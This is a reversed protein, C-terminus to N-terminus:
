KETINLCARIVENQKEYKRADSKSSLYPEFTLHLCNQGCSKPIAYKFGIRIISLCCMTLLVIKTKNSVWKIKNKMLCHCSHM